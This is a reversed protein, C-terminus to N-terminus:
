EEVWVGLKKFLKIQASWQAKLKERGIRNTIQNWEKAVANLAGEASEKGTLYNQIHRSLADIYEDEGTIYIDPYGHESNIRKADMYEKLTAHKHQWLAPNMDHSRRFTNEGTQGHSVYRISVDPSAMYRIVQFAAERKEPPTLKSIAMVRGVGVWSRRILKGKVEYGPLLAYGVQEPKVPYKGTGVWPGIDPWTICMATLGGLFSEFVQVAGMALAGPPANDLSTKFDKLAQVGGATNIMPNMDEDFFVGGTSAFRTLWYGYGMDKAYYEITGYNIKGDGDWDWGNFFKAIENYEKYTKPPALERGYERKFRTKIEPDNFIDKRYYLILVDGDYPLAYINDGWMCYLYRYIPYIDHWYVPYKKIYDNLPVLWNGGMLDGNHPPFYVLINYEGAGSLLDAMITPFVDAPSKPTGELKVGLLHEMRPVNNLEPIEPAIWPNFNHGSDCIFNLKIGKYPPEEPPLYPEEAEAMIPIALLILGLIVCSLKFTKM